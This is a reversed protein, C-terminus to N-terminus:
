FNFVKVLPDENTEGGAFDLAEITMPSKDELRFTKQVIITGGPEVFESQALLNVGEVDAVVVPRLELDNQYANVLVSSTFSRAADANNKYKFSVVAIDEDEYKIVKADEITVKVKGLNGSFESKDSDSTAAEGEVKDMDAPEINVANGDANNEGNNEYAGSADIKQTNQSTATNNNKDAKKACGAASVALATAMVMIILKKNM